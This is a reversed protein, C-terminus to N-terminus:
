LSIKCQPLETQLKKVGAATVKAGKLNLVKLNKLGKLNDLGNDTVQTKDLHLYNLSVLKRLYKLGDDGVATSVLRLTNLDALGELHVLGGDKVTSKSLSLVQLNTFGKLHSLGEDTVVKGTLDVSVWGYKPDTKHSGGMKRIESSAAVEAATPESKGSCGSLLFGLLFLPVIKKM